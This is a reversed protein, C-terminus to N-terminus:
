ILYENGIFKPEHLYVKKKPSNLSIRIAEIIKKTLLQNVNFQKKM